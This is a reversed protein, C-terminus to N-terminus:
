LFCFRTEFVNLVVVAQQVTERKLVIYACTQKNIRYCTYVGSKKMQDFLRLLIDTRLSPATRVMFKGCCRLLM